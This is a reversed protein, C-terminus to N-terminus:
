NTRGNLNEARQLIAATCRDYRVMLIRGNSAYEMQMGLRLGFGNGDVLTSINSVIFLDLGHYLRETHDVVTMFPLAQRNCCFTRM